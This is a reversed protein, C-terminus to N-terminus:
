KRKLSEQRRKDSLNLDTIMVNSVAIPYKIKSGEKKQFEIGEVLVKGKKSYISEVKGSKGKFQGTMIRVRDGTRVRATRKSHKKSLEDSLHAKLFNVRLHIPATYRHKRQKKPKKSTTVMKGSLNYYKCSKINGAM